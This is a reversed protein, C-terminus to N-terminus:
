PTPSPCAMDCRQLIHIVLWPSLSMGGIDSQVVMGDVEVKPPYQPPVPCQALETGLLHSNSTRTTKRGLILKSSTLHSMSVVISVTPRPLQPQFQVNRVPDKLGITCQQQRFVDIAHCVNIILIDVAPTSVNCLSKTSIICRHLRSTDDDNSM